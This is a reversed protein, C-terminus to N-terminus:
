FRRHSALLQQMVAEPRRFNTKRLDSFATALDLLGRRAGLDLIGITGVVPFRLRRALTVGERDDMLLLRPRLQNALAIVAAEGDDLDELTRDTVTGPHQDHVDIWPPPSASWARVDSPAEDHRLETLVVEPLSVRDFLLPLIQIRKILVLYHIPGTDSIVM